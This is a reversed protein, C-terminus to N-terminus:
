APCHLRLTGGTRILAPMLKTAGGHRAMRASGPWAAGRSAPHRVPYGGPRGGGQAACRRRWRDSPRHGRGALTRPRDVDGKGPPDTRLMKRVLVMPDTDIHLAPEMRVAESALGFVSALIGATERTRLSPSFLLKDPTFGLKRLGRASAKVRKRGAPTLPRKDDDPYLMANRDAAPGHRFLALLLGGKGPPANHKFSGSERKKNM